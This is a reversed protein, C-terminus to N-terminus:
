IMELPTQRAPPPFAADLAAFDEKGLKLALAARNERVHTEDAAKPIAIVGKRSLVWALAV